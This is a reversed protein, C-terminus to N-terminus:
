TDDSPFLLFLLDPNRNFRRAFCIIQHQECRKECGKKSM